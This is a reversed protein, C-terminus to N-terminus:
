TGPEKVEYTLPTSDGDWAGLDVYGWYTWYGNEDVFDANTDEAEIQGDTGDTTFSAAYEKVNGSPARAKIKKTAAGSVDVPDGNEDKITARFVTGTQGNRVTDPTATATM